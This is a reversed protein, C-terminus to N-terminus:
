KLIWMVGNIDDTGGFQSQIAANMNTPNNTLEGQPYMWRKPVLGGNQTAPGVDMTPIGTRRQEFFPEWGSNMFFAIYKQTIIMPIANAPAFSVNPQALYAAVDTDSVGYFNLSATVGNNYHDGANGSAWGRSIAEAMLFEQEAYSLFILPENVQDTWYRKKIRSAAASTTQQDSIGLGADVGAYNGVVGATQGPIPEAFSYLRPDNRDKLINVFGKEMSIVTQMDNSLYSPYYNSVASTNFVIQGNDDNSSMLPYKGPNSVISQFQQKINLDPDSEKKSLHMLVRLRYANVLQKWKVIENASSGYIVDGTLAGKSPDLMANAAELEALEGVYISKQVDYKPMTVGQLAKMAETYPVDGFTETLQIYCVARFFKALAQYNVQGTKAAAADMDNIQRLIDYNGFDSRTWNYQVNSNPSEYYTLHRAAYSANLQLNAFLSVQVNTLALAPTTASPNNPNTQYYDQKKCSSVSVLCLLILPLLRYSYKM